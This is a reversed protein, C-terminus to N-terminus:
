NTAQGVLRGRGEDIARRAGGPVAGKGEGVLADSCSFFGKVTGSVHNEEPHKPFFRPPCVKVVTSERHRLVVAPHTTPNSDARAGGVADWADLLSIDSSLMAWM